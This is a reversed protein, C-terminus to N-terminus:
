GHEPTFLYDQSGPFNLCCGCTVNVMVNPVLTPKNSPANSALYGWLKGSVAKGYVILRQWTAQKFMVGDKEM